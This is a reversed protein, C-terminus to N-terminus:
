GLLEVDLGIARMFLNVEGLKAGAMDPPLQKAIEVTQMVREKVGLVLRQQQEPSASVGMTALFQWVQYDSSQAVNETTFIYPLVPEALDFLRNYLQNWQAWDDESIHQGASVQKILVARSVLITLFSVGIKTRMIAQVNVRDLILGLLGSIINLPADNIYALLTPVVAQSFLEVEDRVARPLVPEDPHPYALRIVDLMDLHVALLTIITLRQQDDIHRFIRPIAKKGKSHSLIAIFPHPSAPSPYRDSILCTELQKNPIM